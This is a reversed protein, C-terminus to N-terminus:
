IEWKLEEKIQKPSLKKPDDKTHVLGAQVGNSNLNGFYKCAKDYADDDLWVKVNWGRLVPYLEYPLYTTLLGIAWVGSNSVRIASMADEVLVLRKNGDWQKPPAIFRPHKIDRQRVTHWKPKEPPADELKRGIWGVLKGAMTTGHKGYQKIPFITRQHSHSWGLNFRGIDEPEFYHDYLYVLAKPHIESTIDSPLTVFEPRTDEKKKGLNDVIKKVDSPGAKSDPFFLSKKCRFCFALFGDEKRTIQVAMSNGMGMCQDCERARTSWGEPKSYDLHEALVSM